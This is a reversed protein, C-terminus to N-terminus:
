SLRGKNLHMSTVMLDKCRSQVFASVSQYTTQNLPQSADSSSPEAFFEPNHAVGIGTGISRQLAWVLQFRSEEVRHHELMCSVLKLAMACESVKGTRYTSHIRTYVLDHYYKELDRPLDIIYRVVGAPSQGDALRQSVTDLVCTVSLMKGDAKVCLDHILRQPPNLAKRDYAYRVRDEHPLKENRGACTVDFLKVNDVCDKFTSDNAQELRRCILQFIDWANNEPLKLRPLGDFAKKFSSWPRSSVCLRVPTTKTLDLLMQILEPIQKEECEDLGDIIICAQIGSAAIIRNLAALLTKTTWSMGRLPMRSVWEDPFATQALADYQQLAQFCLHQLMVQFSRQHSDGAIWFYRDLIFLDADGTPTQLATITRRDLSFSKTFVSKGTGPEGSIWCHRVSSDLWQKTPQTNDEFAWDYTSGIPDVIMDRRSDMGDYALSQLLDEVRKQEIDNLQRQEVRDIGQEARGLGQEVRGVGQEVKGVGQEVRGVGQEVKGVGQEVRTVGEGVTRIDLELAALKEAILTHSDRVVAVCDRSNREVVDRLEEFGQLLSTKIAYL